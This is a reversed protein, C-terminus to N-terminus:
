GHSAGTKGLLQEFTLEETVHAAGERARHTLRPALDLRRLAAREKRSSIPSSGESIWGLNNRRRCSRSYSRTPSGLGRLALTRTM